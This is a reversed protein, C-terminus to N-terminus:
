VTSEATAAVPAPASAQRMTSAADANRITLAMVAGALAVGAAVFFAAHYAGVGDSAGHAAHHTSIVTALVAVGLAAGTQRLANFLSSAQGTSAKSVQAFAATQMALFVNAMSAGLGFMTVVTVVVPTGADQLALLVAFAAVGVLGASTLWRPGFRSYIRSGLPTAVMVGLAEPFTLLGTELPSRGLGSQQFQAFAYLLGLFAAFGVLNVLTSIGFLRNQFLRMDLMPAARRLEHRILWALLVFGAIGPLLVGASGWGDSPGQSLAYMLGALGLGAYLFGGIDFSDSREARTEQLFVYGFVVAVVGLPVNVFFAWRWSARDVLLGGIVPGLAPATATPFTLIRVARLREQLPFTRFLMSLGVPLLMGGGVGQLVRCAVLQGLNSALGCLGSAVTFITLAVLLVRKDGFRDGLWGAAPIFVALSVLYASAVASAAAADAGFDRGIVPLAVNVVTTDLISVFTAAVFVISVAVKPNRLRAIM